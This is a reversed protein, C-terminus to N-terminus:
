TSGVSESGAIEAVWPAHEDSLLGPLGGTHLFVVPGDPLLGRRAASVLGAMAKGTYVPDLLLGELRAALLMAEACAETHAGYGAGLQEDDIRAQGRPAPLGVLAATEAALGNVREALDVRTGVRVGLVADADGFGAVLGAHTGTSGTAVVCLSLDPLAARLEFACRTYGLSGLPTSMGVAVPCARVGDAVLRETERLIAADLDAHSEGPSFVIEAGLVHDLLLNGSAREPEHGDIVLTCGLGAKAAAAATARAANSQVGGGTVLHTCGDAVAQAVVTELKRVKNGGAALGTLDDRKVFLSGAPRGLHAALRDMPELPTPLVALPYRPPEPYPLRTPDTM